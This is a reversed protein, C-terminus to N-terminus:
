QRLIVDILKYQLAFFQEICHVESLMTKFFDKNLKCYLGQMYMFIYRCVFVYSSTVDTSSHQTGSFM